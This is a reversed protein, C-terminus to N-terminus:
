KGRQENSASLIFLFKRLHLSIVVADVQTQKLGEGGWDGFGTPDDKASTVATATASPSSMTAPGSGTKLPLNVPTPLRTVGISLNSKRLVPM